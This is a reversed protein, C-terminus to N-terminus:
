FRKVDREGTKILLREDDVYDEEDFREYLKIKSSQVHLIIEEPDSRVEESIKKEIQNIGSRDMKLIRERNLIDPIEYENITLAYAVKYLRRNLLRVMFDKAKSRKNGKMHIIKYFITHDDLELYKKLFKEPSVKDPNLTERDIIGDDIALKIARIYMDDTILRTKHEYVQTHM